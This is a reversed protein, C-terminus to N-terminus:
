LVRTVYSKSVWVRRQKGTVTDVDDVSSVPSGPQVNELDSDGVYEVGGDLDSTPSPVRDQGPNGGNALSPLSSQIGRDMMPDEPAPSPPTHPVMMRMPPAPNGETDSYHRHVIEDDRIPVLKYARVPPTPGREPESMARPSYARSDQQMRPSMTRFKPSPPLNHQVMQQPHHMRQEGSDSYMGRPYTVGGGGGSGRYDMSGMDHSALHYDGGDSNYHGAAAYEPYPSKHDSYYGAMTHPPGRRSMMTPSDPPTGVDSPPPHEPPPPLFLVPGKAGPIPNLLGTDEDPFYIM